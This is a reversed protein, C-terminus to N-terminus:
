RDRKGEIFEAVWQKALVDSSPQIHPHKFSFSSISELRGAIKRNLALKMVRIIDMVVGASNGSDEVRMKVDVELPM